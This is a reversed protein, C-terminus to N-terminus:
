NYKIFSFKKQLPVLFVYTDQKTKFLKTKCSYTLFSSCNQQAHKKKLFQILDM